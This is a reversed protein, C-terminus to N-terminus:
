EDAANLTLEDDEAATLPQGYLIQDRLALTADLKQKAANYQMEQEPTAEGSSIASVMVPDNVIDTLRTIDASIQTLLRATGASLGLGGTSSAASSAKAAAAARALRSQEVAGLLELRDKDYQDRATRAAEVGKLGAEGIAGMLTPQTSSMMNLGVQALALWKDQNAAKERRQLANMLEQEYDSMGGINAIGGSGGSSTTKTSTATSNDATPTTETAPKTEKTPAEATPTKPAQPIEDKQPFEKVAAAREAAIQEQRLKEIDARGQEASRITPVANAVIDQIPRAKLVNRAYYERDVEPPLADLGLGDGTPEFQARRDLGALGLPKDKLAEGIAETASTEYTSQVMNRIPNAATYGDMKPQAAMRIRDLMTFTESGASPPADVAGLQPLAAPVFPTDDAGVIKGEQTPFGSDLEIKPKSIPNTDVLFTDAFRRDLDKQTPETSGLGAPEMGLMRSRLARRAAGEELKDAQEKGVSRLYEDVSMGARNAMAVIAPDASAAGGKRMKQVPGGLAMAQVGTSQAMDTKPAMARAMSALGSQPVGAAAIADEAVTSQPQAANQQAAAEEQLKQRRMIEGLVLFQPANGSPAQMERVLQDQSFNKLQEQLQVINM